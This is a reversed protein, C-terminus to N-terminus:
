RTGDLSKKTWDYATGFNFSYLTVISASNGAKKPVGHKQKLAAFAGAM